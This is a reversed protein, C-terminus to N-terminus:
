KKFAEPHIVEAFREAAAVIRPGPVVFEDGTLMYVRRNRVAPVSPVAKWPELEQSVDLSALSDGYHLELIIEPKRALLMETTVTVSQRKIDAFMNQGGAADLLDALFGYGGSADIHRLSGPDRGFVLLTLPRPRGAVKARVTALRREMDEALATAASAAGVRQGLSRITETIDPLARHEYIYLPISARRLREILETQTKYAVALDPRLALIREVDPDVLGGLRPLRQVEPPFKDYTGVGVVRAGVGMAFLMETTAPVISVIRQPLSQARSPAGPVLSLFALLACLAVAM